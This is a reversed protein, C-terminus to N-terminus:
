EVLGRVGTKATLFVSQVFCWQLRGGGTFFFFHVLSPCDQCFGVSAHPRCLPLRGVKLSTCTPDELPGRFDGLRCTFRSFIISGNAYADNM